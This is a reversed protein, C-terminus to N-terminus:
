ATRDMGDIRATRKELAQGSQERQSDQEPQGTEAARDRTDEGLNGIRSTKDRSDEGPQRKRASRDQIKQGAVKNYNDQGPQRTRSDQRLLRTGLEETRAAGVHSDQTCTLL